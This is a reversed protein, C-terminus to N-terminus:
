FVDLAGAALARDVFYGYIQPNMDDLNAELVVVFETKSEETKQETAEGIFLRLISPQEGIDAAGAGHGIVGVTMAPQVGFRSALTTAVAAGTPTVLEREIGNSYTPVGRLLDATAPAPVPLLGHQTNVRGGSVNLASCAIEEFGLLEFGVSTGAIDIIADVAGVEHFHVKEIPLDHLRAKAEALRQFVASARETVRPPLAGERLLKLIHDLSLHHHLERFEV